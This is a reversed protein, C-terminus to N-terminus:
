NLSPTIEKNQWDEWDEVETVTFEIPYLQLVEQTIHANFQYSFQQQMSLAPTTSSLYYTNYLVDGNYLEVAFSVDYTRDVNTEPVFYLHDTEGHANEGIKSEALEATGNWKATGFGFAKNETDDTRTWVADEAGQRTCTAYGTGNSIAVDKVVIKLQSHNLDNYFCFRVRSLMHDFTFAVTGPNDATLTAPSTVTNYAYILDDDGSNNFTVTANGDANDATLAYEATEPAIAHFHYTKDPEWLVLKESVWPANADARSVNDGRFLYQGPTHLGYVNFDMLTSTTIDTARTSNNVFTNFRISAKPASDIVEDNSCSAFM